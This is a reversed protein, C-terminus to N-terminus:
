QAGGKEIKGTKGTEPLRKPKKIEIGLKKHLSLGLYDWDNRFEEAIIQEKTETSASDPITKSGKIAKKMSRTKKVFKPIRMVQVVRYAVLSGVVAVIAAVIMIFYFTPVGETIEEMEIVITIDLTETTYNAITIEIEGTLTQSTIFAEYDETSFECIYLGPEDEDFEFEDDGLEMVVEAGRLPSNGDAPDTLEVEITVKEGKVINIQDDDIGSADLDAEIERALINIIYTATKTEYNEKEFTAILSYTGIPRNETNFDLFYEGTISTNTLDGSSFSGGGKKWIYTTRANDIPTGTTTNYSFYLPLDKGVRVNATTIISEEGDILTAIPDIDLTIVLTKDENNVKDAEIILSYTGVFELETSNLSILYEGPQVMPILEDAVTPKQLIYYTVDANDIGGNPDQNTNNYQVSLYIYENWNVRISSANSTLTAPPDDIEFQIFTTAPLYGGKEATVVLTYTTSSNLAPDSFTSSDLNYTYNGNGQETFIIDETSIKYFGLKLYSTVSADEIAQSQSGESFTYNVSFQITEGLTKQEVPQDILTSGFTEMSVNVDIIQYEYFNLYIEQDIPGSELDEPAEINRLAGLFAVQFSINGDEGQTFNRWHFITQGVSDTLEYGIYQDGNGDNYDVYFSVNANEVFAIEGGEERQCNLTLSTMNVNTFYTENLGTDDTTQDNIDITKPDTISGPNSGPYVEYSINVIYTGNTLRTFTFTGDEETENSYLLEYSSANWVKVTAEPIARGDVDTVNVFLNYFKNDRGYIYANMENKLSTSINEFLSTLESQLWDGKVLNGYGWFDLYVSHDEGGGGNDFNSPFEPKFSFTGDETDYDKDGDFQGFTMDPDSSFQSIFLGITRNEGETDHVITYNEIDPQNTVLNDQYVGDYIMDILNINNLASLNYFNNIAYSTTYEIEYDADFYITRDINWLNYDYYFTVVDSIHMDWTQTWDIEYRAMVPGSFSEEINNITALDTTYKSNTIETDTLSTNYIAVEDIYGTYNCDNTRIESGPSDPDGGHQSAGFTLPSQDRDMFSGWVNDIHMWTGSGGVSPKFVYVSVRGRNSAEPDYYGDYRVSVFNWENPLIEAGSQVFHRQTNGDDTQMYVFIYYNNSSSDFNIGIEIDDNDTDTSRAFWCNETNHNTEKTDFDTPKIWATITFDYSVEDSFPGDDANGLLEDDSDSDDYAVFGNGPFYLSGGTGDYGEGINSWQADGYFDMNESTIKGSDDKVDAAGIDDFHALFALEDTLKEPRNTFDSHLNLAPDGLYLKNWGSGEELELTYNAEGSPPNVSVILKNSDLNVEFGTDYNPLEIENMNENYYVFYTQNSNSSVNAMFTITCTEIFRSDESDHTINWVEIPLPDSWENPKDPADYSVLRTSNVIHEKDSGFNLFINIPEYRDFNQLNELEFGIRYRYSTNWWDSLDYPESKQVVDSTKISDTETESKLDNTDIRDDNLINDLDNSILPIFMITSSFGLFVLILTAKIIKLNKKKIHTM